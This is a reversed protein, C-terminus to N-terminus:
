QKVWGSDTAPGSPTYTYTRVWTNTGDTVTDTALNGSNDYTFTHARYTPVANGATDTTDASGGGVRALNSLLQIFDVDQGDKNVIYVPAANLSRSLTAGM